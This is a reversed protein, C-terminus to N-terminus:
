RLLVLGGAVLFLSFVAAFAGLGSLASRWRSISVPPAARGLERALESLRALRVELPPHTWARINTPVIFFASMRAVRRLDSQPIQPMTGAIKQLASMLQEPAGTLLVAGRDAAFERCRSLSLMLCLGVAYVACVLVMLPFGLVWLKWPADAIGQRATLAPFSAFTMVAGDRNAIHAMEHALVAEIEPPDLARVLGRTIAVTSRSPGRGAAFADPVDSDIVAARPVPVDALSALRALTAHLKPAEAPSVVRAGVARLALRDLSAHQTWIGGVAALVILVLGWGGLVGHRFLWVLLAFVGAYLALLLLVTAAMRISLALDRGCARRQV